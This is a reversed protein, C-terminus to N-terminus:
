QRMIKMIVKGATHSRGYIAGPVITAHYNHVHIREKAALFPFLVVFFHFNHSRRTDRPLQNSFSEARRLRNAPKRKRGNAAGGSEDSVAMAGGDDGCPNRRAGRRASSSARGARDSRRRRV